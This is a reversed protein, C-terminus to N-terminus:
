NVPGANFAVEDVLESARQRLKAIKDLAVPDAKFTGWSKVRESWPVNASVPYEFNAKAYISQAENSALYEMLKLANNRNPAHKAMVMGSVNVHAGRDESNPFLMKVSAAWKKQEPKKDNTQMKGMYYTNGIAIDCEGSYVGKIQSRDNGSPRRALNDRLGTLWTKTKAEGHHALMSAIMAVNYVHQGSRVCIRGKWKRTALEELTIANQNVRDRSAYIVRLRTTLAFWRNDTGRYQVPIQKSLFQSKVSQTVGEKVATTLRGIDVTLILDVPSNTGEARARAILGRKAFVVNSKIGTKKEFAKLLPRILSSQRYSYINVENTAHALPAGSAAFLM